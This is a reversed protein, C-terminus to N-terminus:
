NKKKDSKFEKVKLDFNKKNKINFGTPESVYRVNWLYCKNANDIKGNFDMDSCKFLCNDYWIIKKKLFIMGYSTVKITHAAVKSRKPQRISVLKASHPMSM